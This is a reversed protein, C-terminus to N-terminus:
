RSRHIAAARRWRMPALAVSRRDQSRVPGDPAPERRHAHYRNALTDNVTVLGSTCRVSQRELRHHHLQCEIRPHLQRRSSKSLTMDPACLAASQIGTVQALTATTTSTGASGATAGYPVGPTLTTGSGGGSVSISAAAGSVFVVGGGGGGGPGHRDALNYPDSTGPMAEAAAKAQLTLGSEGGNAALM